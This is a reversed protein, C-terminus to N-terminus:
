VLGKMLQLWHSHAPFSLTVPMTTKAYVSIFIGTITCSALKDGSAETHMHIIIIIQHVVQLPESHALKDGGQVFHGGNQLCYIDNLHM